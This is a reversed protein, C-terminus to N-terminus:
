TQLIQSRRNTSLEFRLTCMRVCVYTSFLISIKIRSWESNNSIPKQQLPSRGCRQLRHLRLKELTNKNCIWWLVCVPLYRTIKSMLYRFVVRSKRFLIVGYFWRFIVKIQIYKWTFSRMLTWNTELTKCLLTIQRSMSAYM